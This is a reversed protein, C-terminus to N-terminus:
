KAPKIQVISAAGNNEEFEFQVHDGAKLSGLQQPTAKFAMTMAPWQLEPVPQHSIVVSSQAADVSQIVGTTKGHQAASSSSKAPMSKMDMDKMETSLATGAGLSGSILVAILVEAKM